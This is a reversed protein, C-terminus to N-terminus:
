SGGKVRSVEALGALRVALALGSALGSVARPSVDTHVGHSGKNHITSLLDANYRGFM